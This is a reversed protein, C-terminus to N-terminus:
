KEINVELKNKFEKKVIKLNDKKKVPEKGGKDHYLIKIEELLRERNRQYHSNSNNM